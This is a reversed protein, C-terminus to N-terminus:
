HVNGPLFMLACERAPVNTCMAQCSCHAIRATCMNFVYLCFKITIYLFSTTYFVFLQIYFIPRHAPGQLTPPFSAFPLLLTSLINQSPYLSLSMLFVSFKKLSCLLHPPPPHCDQCDMFKFTPPWYMLLNPPPTWYLLFVLIQFLYPNFSGEGRSRHHRRV